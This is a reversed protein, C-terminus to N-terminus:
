RGRDRPALDRTRAADLGDVNPKRGTALLLRDFALKSGDALSLSNSTVSQARADLRIDVGDERLAEEVLTAADADVRSLLRSDGQVLTM